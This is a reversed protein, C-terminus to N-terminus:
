GSHTCCYEVHLNQKTMFAHLINADLAPM